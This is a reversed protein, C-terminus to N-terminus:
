FKFYNRIRKIFDLRRKSAVDEEILRVSPRLDTGRKLLKVFEKDSIKRNKNELFGLSKVNDPRKNMMEVLNNEIFFDRDVEFVEVGKEPTNMDQYYFALKAEEPLCLAAASIRHNKSINVGSWHIINMDFIVCEGAKLPIPKSHKKILDNYNIFFPQSGNGTVGAVIKHSGEVVQLNGNFEDVDVLPCWVIVPMDKLSTSIPPHQHPSLDGKGPPKIFFGSLMVKYNCLLKSIHPYFVDRILGSTRRRYEIDNDSLSDHYDERFAGTPIFDFAPRLKKLEKLIYDVEDASLLPVITYGKELLKKQNDEDSFIKRM